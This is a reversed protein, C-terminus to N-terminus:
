ALMAFPPESQLRGFLIPVCGTVAEFRQAKDVIM